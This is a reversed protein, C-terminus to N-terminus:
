EYRLRTASKSVVIDRDDTSLAKRGWDTWDLVIKALM